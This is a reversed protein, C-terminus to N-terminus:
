NIRQRDLIDDSEKSRPLRKWFAQKAAPMFQLVEKEIREIKQQNAGRPGEQCPPRIMKVGRKLFDLKKLPRDHKTTYYLVREGKKFQIHKFYTLNPTKQKRTKIASQGKSFLLFDWPEMVIVKTHKSSTETLNCYDEFDYLDRHIKRNKEIM